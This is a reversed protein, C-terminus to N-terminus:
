EGKNHVFVHQECWLSPSDLISAPLLRKISSIPKLVFKFSINENTIDYNLNRALGLILAWTLEPTPHINIDTGCVTIKKKEAADLDIQVQFSSVTLPPSFNIRNVDLDGTTGVIDGGNAVPQKDGNSNTYFYKFGNNHIIYPLNKKATLNPM